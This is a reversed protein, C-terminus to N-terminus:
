IIVSKKEIWTQARIRLEKREQASLGEPAFRYRYHLAAIDNLEKLMASPFSKTDELRKIWVLIPESSHRTYGSDNLTNIILFFESDGGKVPDDTLKEKQKKRLLTVEKKYFLRWLLIFFLPIVLWIIHRTFEKNDTEKRWNIIVYHIYSLFDSVTQFVSANKQEASFWAPPTTDFDHWTGNFYVLTWAHAHRQRAVFKKELKSFEQVSYGRVYRARIGAKRLLLTAATAFFECHGTRSYLLFNELPTTGTKVEKQVLSYTFNKQFFDDITKFIQEPSKQKLKLSDSIKTLTSDENEPIALDYSEPPGDISSNYRGRVTYTIMSPGDEVKVAGLTNLKVLSVPLNEIVEAGTPLPLVGKGENLYTSIIMEMEGSLSETLKWLTGQSNDPTVTQFPSHAARWANIKFLNYSATRLLVPLAKSSSSEIRIVIEDSLKLRGVDGIATLARFPDTEEPYMGYFWQYIKTDIIKQLAYLGNQGAYGACAACLFLFACLFFSFRQSRVSWLAWGTILCIGIYFWLTNMNAAGSSVLCIAVYPYSLDINVKERGGIKKKFFLFLTRVNISNNLSFTQFILLPFFILPFYRIIEVLFYRAEHSLSLYLSLAILLFTSLSSVRNFDKDSINWRLPVFRAGEVALAMILAYFLLQSQYGWFLLAAGTLFPPTKM